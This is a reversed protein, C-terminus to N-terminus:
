AHRIIGLGSARTVWGPRARDLDANPRYYTDARQRDGYGQGNSPGPYGAADKGDEAKAHEVGCGSDSWLVKRVGKHRRYDSWLFSAPFVPPLAKVLPVYRVPVGDHIIRSLHRGRRVRTETSNSPLEFRTENSVVTVFGLLGSRSCLL